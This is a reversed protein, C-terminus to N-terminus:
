DTAASRYSRSSQKRRVHNRRIWKGWNASPSEYVQYHMVRYLPEKDRDPPTQGIRQIVAWENYYDGPHMPHEGLEVSHLYHRAYDRIFVKWLEVTMGSQLKDLAELLRGARTYPDYKKREKKQEHDPDPAITAAGTGTPEDLRNDISVHESSKTMQM